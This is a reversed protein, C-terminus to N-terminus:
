QDSCSSPLMQHKPQAAVSQCCAPTVSMHLRCIAGRMNKLHLLCYGLDLVPLQEQDATLTAGSGSSYVRRFLQSSEQQQHLYIHETENHEQVPSLPAASRSLWRVTCRLLGAFLLGCLM